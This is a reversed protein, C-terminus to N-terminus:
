NRGFLANASTMPTAPAAPAAVPAPAAPASANATVTPAAVVVDDQVERERSNHDAIAGIIYGAAAGYAAGRWSNHGLSGSNNGLIAGGIAGLLLGNTAYSTRGSSYYTSGYSRDYYSSRGYYSRPYYGYGSNYGYGYGYGRSAYDPTWVHTATRRNYNYDAISGLLLGAGAGYAAGRWANHGLSGSNHGIVAGTMGGWFVGRAARPGFVQAGAPAAALLALSLVLATKM